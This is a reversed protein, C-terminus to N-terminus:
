CFDRIALVIIEIYQFCHFNKTIFAIFIKSLIVAIFISYYFCSLFRVYRSFTVLAVFIEYRSTLWSHHIFTEVNNDIFIM